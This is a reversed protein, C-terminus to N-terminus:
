KFNGPFNKDDDLDEGADCDSKKSVRSTMHWGSCLPCRYVSGEGGRSRRLDLAREARERRGWRRKSLCMRNQPRVHVRWCVDFATM